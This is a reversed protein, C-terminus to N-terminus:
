WGEALGGDFWDWLLYMLIQTDRAGPDTVPIRVGLNLMVHQRKSLTVQFQPVLDWSNRGVSSLERAGLLEVIPSWARGGQGQTFTRGLALRWFAENDTSSKDVPLEFGSQAQFFFDAPLIQGFAAFPEFITTGKGFGTERDGTPLIVEGAISFISGSKVSHFLARKAAVAVDGLNATWSSMGTGAPAREKWGFPVVLEVQSRAGIRKEYIVQNAISGRGEAGISTSFVVEDEPFAKETVLARPLNLEGRPWDRNPCFTRIHAVALEIEARTLAEGFAPMLKSFARAPGGEHAITLWDADPERTAFSCDSFDPVPVDFALQSQPVGRGDAGHCAACAALYIERANRQPAHVNQQSVAAFDLASLSLWLSGAVLAGASRRRRNSSM